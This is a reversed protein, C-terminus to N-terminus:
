AFVCLRLSKKRYRHDKVTPRHPNGIWFGFDAIWFPNAGAEDAWQARKASKHGASTKAM